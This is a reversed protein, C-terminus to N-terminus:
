LGHPKMKPKRDILEEPIVEPFTREAVKMIDVVASHMMIGAAPVKETILAFLNVPRYPVDGFGDRDLDYGNYDSWYNESYTNRNYKSNTIVDFTNGLFNNKKIHNDLCNGKIDLATGNRIFQNQMIQIRNAGEAMIGITNHEFKNATIDGDSIEKLLLGYAANGWNESFLNHKMSINKSFMVAVGAGNRTFENSSYLDANSFM